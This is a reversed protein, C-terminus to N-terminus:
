MDHQENTAPQMDFRSLEMQMNNIAFTKLKMFLRSLLPPDEAAWFNQNHFGLFHMSSSIIHLCPFMKPSLHLVAPTTPGQTM